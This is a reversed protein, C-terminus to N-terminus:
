LKIVLDAMRQIQCFRAEAAAPAIPNYISGKPATVKIPRFSGENQPVYEELTYTDLLMARVCFLQLWPVEMSRFM